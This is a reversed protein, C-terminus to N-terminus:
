FATQPARPPWGHMASGLRGSQGDQTVEVDIADGEAVEVDAMAGVYEDSLESIHCFGDVGDELEIFIGFPVVTKVVAGEYVKGVPITTLDVKPGGGGGGGGGGGPGSGVIADIRAKAADITADDFATICVDGEDPKNLGINVVGSSEIIEKITSGGSGIVKGVKDQPIKFKFMRPVTPPLRLDATAEPSAAKMEDLIHM